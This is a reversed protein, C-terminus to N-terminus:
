KCELENQPKSFHYPGLVKGDVTLYLNYGDELKVFKMHKIKYWGYEDKDVSESYVPSISNSNYDFEFVDNKEPVTIVVENADYTEGFFVANTNYLDKNDFYLHLSSIDIKSFGFYSGDNITFEFWCKVNYDTFNEKESVDFYEKINEDPTFEDSITAEKIWEPIDNLGRDWLAPTVVPCGLVLIALIPILAFYQIKKM